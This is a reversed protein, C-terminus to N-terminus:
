LDDLAGFLIQYIVSGELDVPGVDPIDVGVCEITLQRIEAEPNVVTLTEDTITCAGAALEQFGEQAVSFGTLIIRDATADYSLHITRPPDESQLPFAVATMDDDLSSPAVVLVPDVIEWEENGVTITGGTDPMDVTIVLDAPLALIGELTISGNDRIDVLEACSVKVAILGTDENHGGETFSCDGPEPFFALGGHSMQGIALPDSEFFMKTQSNGLGFTPGDVQRDLTVTESTAGTIELEGGPATPVFDLGGDASEGAEELGESFTPADPITFRALGVVGLVVLVASAALIGLGKWIM